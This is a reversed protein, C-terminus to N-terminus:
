HVAGSRGSWPQAEHGGSLDENEDALLPIGPGLHAAVIRVLEDNNFPKSLFGDMGAADCAAVDDRSSNATLAIIPVRSIRAAAEQSRIERTAALGDLEPMRIDMLVV